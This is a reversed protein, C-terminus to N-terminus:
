CVRRWIRRTSPVHIQMPRDMMLWSVGIGSSLGEGVSPGAQAAQRDDHHHAPGVDALGGEEVPQGAATPRQHVIEGPHRPVADEAFCFSEAAPRHAHDIGTAQQHLVLVGEDRQDPSLRLGRNAFAVDHDEEEITLGAGYRLVALDRIVQAPEPYRDNRDDVLGIALSDVQLRVLEVTETEALRHHNGGLM